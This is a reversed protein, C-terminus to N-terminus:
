LNALFSSGHFESMKVYMRLVRYQVSRCTDGIQHVLRNGVAHGGNGKRVVAVHEADLQKVVGALLFADFGDQSTLCVDGTHGAEVLLFGDVAGPLVEDQKGLVEGTVLVEHLQGGSGVHVTIIVAGTDVLFQQFLVVLPQYDGGGAKAALNVLFDHCAVEFPCFGSGQPVFVKEALVIVQFDHAVRRFVRFLARLDIVVLFAADFLLYLHRLLQADLEEGGVVHMEEIRLVRLRMVQQNAEVGALINVVGVAHAVGALFPELGRFLHYGEEGVQRFGDFVRLFDGVLHFDILQIGVRQHGHKGNRRFQSRFLLVALLERRFVEEIFKGAVLLAIDHHVFLLCLFFDLFQAADVPKVTDLQFRVVQLFQSQFANDPTIAFVGGRFDHLADVELQVDHFGHTKGPVEENHLVKDLCGAVHAHNHARSTTRCGAAGNGIAKTDGVYVGDFVVQQELTEQVGVTDGEGIDVHVEIIGSPFLHQFPYCLFVARVLHRM